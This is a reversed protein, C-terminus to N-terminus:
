GRVKAGRKLLMDLMAPAVDVPVNMRVYRKRPPQKKRDRQSPRGALSM